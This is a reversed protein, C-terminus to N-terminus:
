QLCGLYKLYHETTQQAPGVRLCKGLVNGYRPTGSHKLYLIHMVYRPYEPGELYIMDAFIEARTLSRLLCM